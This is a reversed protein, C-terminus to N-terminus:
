IRLVGLQVVSVTPLRYRPRPPAPGRAPPVHWARRLAYALVLAAGVVATLLVLCAGAMTGPSGHGDDHHGPVVRGGPVAALHDGRTGPSTPSLHHQATTLATMAAPVADACHAGHLMGLGGLAFAVLLWRTLVRRAVM